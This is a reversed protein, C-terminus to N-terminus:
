MIVSVLDLLLCKKSLGFSQVTNLSNGVACVRGPDAARLKLLSVAVSQPLSLIVHIIIILANGPEFNM